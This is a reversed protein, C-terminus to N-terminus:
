GGPLRHRTGSRSRYQVPCVGRHGKKPRDHQEGVDSETREEDLPYQKKLEECRQVNSAKLKQLRKQTRESLRKKQNRKYLSQYERINKRLAEDTVCVVYGKGCFPCRFFTTEIKGVVRTEFDLPFACGCADCRVTGDFEEM